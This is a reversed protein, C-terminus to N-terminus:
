LVFCITYPLIASKCCCYSCSCARMALSAGLPVFQSRRLRDRQGTHLASGAFAIVVHQVVDYHIIGDNQPVYSALDLDLIDKQRM